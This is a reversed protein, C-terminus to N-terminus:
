WRLLTMRNYCVNCFLYDHGKRLADANMQTCQRSSCFQMTCSYLCFCFVVVVAATAATCLLSSSVVLFAAVFQLQVCSLPAISLTFQFSIKQLPIRYAFLPVVLNFLHIAVSLNRFIVVSRITFAHLAFPFSVAVFVIGRCLCLLACVFGSFIHM